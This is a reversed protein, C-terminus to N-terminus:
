ASIAVREGVVLCRCGPHAPPHSHGTPFAEGSPLVGALADDECDPCAPSTPDPVWRVPAGAPRVAMQGRGFAALVAHRSVEMLRDTKWERYTARLRDSVDDADEVGDFCREVRPRVVGALDRALEEALEVVSTSPPLSAGEFAAGEEAAAALDEAVAEVYTAIQEALPLLDALDARGRERRVGDLVRGQEDALARKLRRAVRSEIPEVAGDRRELLTLLADDSTGAAAAEERGEVEQDSPASPSGEDVAVPAEAAVPEDEGDDQAARLRAFLADAADGSAGASGPEPDPDPGSEPAPEDEAEPEGWLEAASLGAGAEVQGDPEPEAEPEPEPEAEPEPEPEPEAEVAIEAAIEAEVLEAEAEADLEAEAAVAVIEVEGTPPESALVEAEEVEEAPVAKTLDIVPTEGTDGPAVLPLGASRAAAIQAELQEVTADPEAEARIRAAESAARADPLARRLGSTAEDLTRQVADYSELLRDRAAQLQELQVKAAKRRRSLDQLMRERVRQAEAVMERGEAQAAERDAAAAARIGEADDRAAQRLGEADDEAAAVIGRAAEDAEATRVGLVEDAESRVQQADAAAEEGTHAAAAEAAERITEAEDRLARAAAEGEVRLRDAEAQADTRLAAAEDRLAQAAAEGEARLRAAEAEDEAQRRTREEEAATRIAQAEDRLRAAAADAERRTQGASEAAERLMRAVSEEAREKIETAARRASTLVRATEEGLAATLQDEDVVPTAEAAARLEAVEGRAGDREATLRDIVESLQGLYARVEDPDFGKRAQAFSRSTISSSRHDAPSGM